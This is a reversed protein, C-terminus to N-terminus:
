VRGPKRGVWAGAMGMLAAGAVFVGSLGIAAALAGFAPPTLVRLAANGTNRVALFQGAAAPPLRAYALTSTIPNAAYCAYGYIFSSAVLVAAGSGALLMVLSVGMLVLCLGLVREEGLWVSLRPLTLPLVIMGLASVSVTAGIVSASLGAAHGFLPLLFPYLEFGVCCISSMAVLRWVERHRLTEQLGGAASKAGVPAPLSQGWILLLGLMALAFPLYVLMASQQGVADIAIGSAFPGIFATFSSIFAYRSFNRSLTAPTSLLGVVTQTPQFALTNAAGFLLAAAYVSAMTPLFFPLVAGAVSCCASAYLLPRAGWRDLAMSVPISIFLMPIQSGAAIVGVEFSGAGLELAFLSLAVRAGIMPVFALTLLALILKLGTSM